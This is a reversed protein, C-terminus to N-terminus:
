IFPGDLEADGKGCYGISVELVGVLKTQIYHGKGATVVKWSSKLPKCCSYPLEMYADLSIPM